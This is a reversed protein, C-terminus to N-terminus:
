FPLLFVMCWQCARNKCPAKCPHLAPQDVANGGQDEVGEDEEELALECPEDSEDSDEEVAANEFGLDVGPLDPELFDFDLEGIMDVDEMLFEPEEPVAVPALPDEFVDQLAGVDLMEFDLNNDEQRELEEIALLYGEVFHPFGVMSEGDNAGNDASM